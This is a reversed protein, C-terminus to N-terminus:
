LDECSGALCCPTCVITGIICGSLLGAIAMIGTVSLVILVIGIKLDRDEFPSVPVVAFIGYILSIVSTIIAGIYALFTAFIAASQACKSEGFNLKLGM